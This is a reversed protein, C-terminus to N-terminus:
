FNALPKLINQELFLECNDEDSKAFLEIKHLIFDILERHRKIVDENSLKKITRFKGDIIKKFEKHDNIIEKRVRKAHKKGSIDLFTQFFKENNFFLTNFIEDLILHDVGRLENISITDIDQKNLHMNAINKYLSVLNRKIVSIVGMMGLRMFPHDTKSDFSGGTFKEYNSKFEERSPRPGYYPNRKYHDRQRINFEFKTDGDNFGLKIDDNNEPYKFYNQGDKSATRFKEKM